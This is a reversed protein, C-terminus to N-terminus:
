RKVKLLSGLIGGMAGGGLMKSLDITAPDFEELFKNIESLMRHTETIMQACLECEHSGHALEDHEM